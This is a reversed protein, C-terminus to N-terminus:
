FPCDKYLKRCDRMTTWQDIKGALVYSLFFQTSSTLNDAFQESIEPHYCNNIMFWGMSQTKKGYNVSRPDRCIGDDGIMRQGDQSERSLVWLAKEVNVGAKKAQTAVYERAQSPSIEVSPVIPTTKPEPKIEIKRASFVLLVGSLLVISILTTFICKIQQVQSSNRECRWELGNPCRRM